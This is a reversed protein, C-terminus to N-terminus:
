FSPGPAHRCACLSTFQRLRPMAMSVGMRSGSASRLGVWSLRWHGITRRLDGGLERLIHDLEVVLVGVDREVPAGIQGLEGGQHAGRRRGRGDGRQDLGVLGRRLHHPVVVRPELGLADGIRALAPLHRAIQGPRGVGRAPQGRDDDDVLVAPQHRVDLVHRSAQREFAEQGQPRVEQVLRAAGGGVLVLAAGHDGLEVARAGNGVGHRAQAVQLGVGAAVALDAGGAEAPAAGHGVRQGHGGPRIRM